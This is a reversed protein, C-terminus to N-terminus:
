AVRRAEATIDTPEAHSPGQPHTLGMAAATASRKEHVSQKAGGNGARSRAFEAAKRLWNRFGAAEDRQRKGNAALWDRFKAFEADCDVGLSAALTQHEVTPEPLIQPQRARALARGEGGGGGDEDGVEVEVVGLPANAQVHAADAGCTSHVHAADARCPYRSSKARIAQRFDLLEGYQKDNIDYLALLGAKQCAAMWRSIDAERVRDVRLPFCRSRLLNPRADFRGYDDVVSMLRRYFVEAAADLEDVRDSTLIGERLLRNPM